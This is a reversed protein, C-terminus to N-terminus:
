QDNMQEVKALAMEEDTVVRPGDTVRKQVGLRRDRVIVEGAPVPLEFSAGIRRPNSLEVITVQILDEDPGVFMTDRVVAPVARMNGDHWELVEMVVRVGPGHIEAREIRCGSEGANSVGQVVLQHDEWRAEITFRNKDLWAIKEEALNIGWGAHNLFHNLVLGHPPGVSDPNDLLLEMEGTALRRFVESRNGTNTIRWEVVGSSPVSLPGPGVGSMSWGFQTYRQICPDGGVGYLMKSEADFQQLQRISTVEAVDDSLDNYLVAISAEVEISLDALETLAVRLSETRDIPRDLNHVLVLLICAFHLQCKM